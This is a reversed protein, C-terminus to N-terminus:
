LADDVGEAWQAHLFANIRKVCRRAAPQWYPAIEDDDAVEYLPAYFCVFEYIQLWDQLNWQQDTAGQDLADALWTSSTTDSVLPVAIHRQFDALLEHAFVARDPIIEGLGACPRCTDYRGHTLTDGRGDCTPCIRRTAPQEQIAPVSVPWAPTATMPPKNGVAPTYAVM